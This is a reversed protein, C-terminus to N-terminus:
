PALITTEELFAPPFSITSERVSPSAFAVTQDRYAPTTLHTKERPGALGPQLLSRTTALASHHQFVLHVSRARGPGPGVWGPPASSPVFGVRRGAPRSSLYYKMKTYNPPIVVKKKKWAAKCKRCKQECCANTAGHVHCSARGLISIHLIHHTLRDM